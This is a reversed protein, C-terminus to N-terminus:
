REHYENIAAAIELVACKVPASLKGGPKLTHPQIALMFLDADGLMALYQALMGLSLAHTSISANAIQDAPILKFTGPPSKLDAADIIIITAAKLQVIKDIYNEPVTGCNLSIFERNTILAALEPGAGDDSFDKNGVGAFILSRRATKLFSAIDAM